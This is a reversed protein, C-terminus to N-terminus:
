PANEASTTLTGETAQPTEQMVHFEAEKEKSAEVAKQIEQRAIREAIQAEANAKRAAEIADNKIKEALKLKIQAQRIEMAKVQRYADQELLEVQRLSAYQMMIVTAGSLVLIIIIVLIRNSSM